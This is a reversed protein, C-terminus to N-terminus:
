NNYKVNYVGYVKEISFSIIQTDIINVCDTQEIQLSHTGILTDNVNMIDENWPINEMSCNNHYYEYDNINSANPSILLIDDLYINYLKFPILCDMEFQTYNCGRNSCCGIGNNVQWYTSIYKNQLINFTINSITQPQILERIMMPEESIIVEEKINTNISAGVSYIIFYSVIIIVAGTVLTLAVAFFTEVSITILAYAVTIILILGLITLGAYIITQLNLIGLYASNTM